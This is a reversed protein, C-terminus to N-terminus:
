LGEIAFPKQIYEMGEDLIGLCLMRAKLGLGMLLSAIFFIM